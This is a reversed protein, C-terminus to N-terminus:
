TGETVTFRAVRRFGATIYGTSAPRGNRPEDYEADIGKSALRGKRKAIKAIVDTTAYGVTEAFPAHGNAFQSFTITTM